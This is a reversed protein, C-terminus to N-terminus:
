SQVPEYQEKNKWLIYFGVAAISCIIFDFVFLAPFGFHLAVQSAGTPALVQALSFSMAYVAAYEGRNHEKSRAVWFTNMFPFLFMEGVTIILIGTLAVILQGPITLSLFSTGMLFAGIIIYNLHHRRNELKYVLVMEILAILFGNLALIMGITAKSLKLEQNYFVPIVSFMQFFSFSILFLLFMGSMFYKDRYASHETLSQKSKKVQVNGTQPGLFVYLLVTALIATGGDAIFLWKFNISALIGGIAPGISWGLNVALRNLSYCRTRNQEDSYAVVAAANAPRFAEGLFSLLFVCLIIQWLQQMQGLIIFMVGNCLLSLLQVYFFGFRDTLRGGIFVGLIAGIGFTGMVIGAQTLTFGKEVLYVTLFPIVMTGCRNVFLVLALFWISRSLGSYANRYLQLSAQLM